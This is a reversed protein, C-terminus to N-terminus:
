DDADVPNAEQGPELYVLRELEEHVQSAPIVDDGVAGSGSDSLGLAAAVALVRESDDKSAILSLCRAAELRAEPSNGRLLAILGTLASGEALETAVQARLSSDEVSVLNALAGAASEQSGEDGEALLAILPPLAGAEVIAAHREAATVSPDADTTGDSLNFLTMACVEKDEADGNALLAVLPILAGAHVIAMKRNESRCSLSQLAGASNWARDDGRFRLLEVLPGIAGAAAIDRDTSEDGVRSLQWLRDAASSQRVPNKSRLREM